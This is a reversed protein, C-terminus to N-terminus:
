PECIPQKPKIQKTTVTIMGNLFRFFLCMIHHDARPGQAGIEGDGSQPGPCVGTHTLLSWPARDKQTANNRAEGIPSGM